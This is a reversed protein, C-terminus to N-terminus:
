RRVGAGRLGVTKVEPVFLAATNHRTCTPGLSGQRSTSIKLWVAMRGNQWIFFCCTFLVCNSFLHLLCATPLFSQLPLM